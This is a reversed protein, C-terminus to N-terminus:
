NGSENTSQQNPPYEIIKYAKYKMLGHCADCLFVVYRPNNYNPHHAEAIPNGCLFCPEKLLQGQKIMYKISARAKRKILNKPDKDSKKHAEVQNTHRPEAKFFGSEALRKHRERHYGSERLAEYDRKAKDKHSERYQKQDILRCDHCHSTYYNGKKFFYFETIPKVQHCKSCEKSEM